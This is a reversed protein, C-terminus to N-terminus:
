IILNKENSRRYIWDIFFTNFIRIKRICNIKPLFSKGIADICRRPFDIFPGRTYTQHLLTWDCELYYLFIRERGNSICFLLACEYHEHMESDCFCRNQRSKTFLVDIRKCIWGWENCSANVATALTWLMCNFTSFLLSSVTRKALYVFTLLILRVDCFLHGFFPFFSADILLNNWNAHNLHYYALLCMVTENALQRTISSIVRISYVVYQLLYRCFFALFVVKRFGFKLNLIGFGGCFPCLAYTHLTYYRAPDSENLWLDYCKGGWKVKIHTYWLVLIANIWEHRIDDHFCACRACRGCMARACCRHRNEWHVYEMWNAKSTATALCVVFNFRVCVIARGAWTTTRATARKFNFRTSITHACIWIYINIDDATSIQLFCTYQAYKIPLSKDAVRTFYTVMRCNTLTAGRGCYVTEIVGNPRCDETVKPRAETYVDWVTSERKRKKDVIKKLKRYNEKM